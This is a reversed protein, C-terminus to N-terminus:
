PSRRPDRGADVGAGGLGSRITAHHQTAPASTAEALTVAAVARELLEDFTIIEPERLSRRFSEFCRFRGRHPRGDGDFLSALQGVVLVSRPRCLEAVVDTEYGDSDRLRYREGLTKRAVDVANHLQAVGGVVDADPVWTDSRYEAEKLLKAHPRKIEVFVLSSMEAATRLVADTRTGASSLDFGSVM